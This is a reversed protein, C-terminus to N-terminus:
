EATGHSGHGTQWVLWMVPATFHKRKRFVILSPLIPFALLRSPSFAHLRHGHDLKKSSGTTLTWALPLGMWTGLWKRRKQFLSAGM